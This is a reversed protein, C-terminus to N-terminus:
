ASFWRGLIGGSSSWMVLNLAWLFLLWAFAPLLLLAGQRALPLFARFCLLNVVLTLGLLLWAWGILNYGFFLLSWGVALLLLLLWWALARLRDYHGGAWVSWAALALLTYFVAWALAFLTATPTWGPRSLKQYYWEGAEFSGALFSAGVVLALLVALSVYRSTM